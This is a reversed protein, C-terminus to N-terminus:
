KKSILLRHLALQYTPALDRPVLVDPASDGLLQGASAVVLANGSVMALGADSKRVSAVVRVGHGRELVVVPLAFTNSIAELFAEQHRATVLQSALASLLRQLPLTTAAFGKVLQTAKLLGLTSEAIEAVRLLVDYALSAAKPLEAAAEAVSSTGATVGGGASAFSADASDVATLIDVLGVRTHALALGILVPLPLSFPLSRAAPSTLNLRAAHLSALGLYSAVDPLVPAADRPPQYSDVLLVDRDLFAVAEHQTVTGRHRTLWCCIRRYLLPWLWAVSSHWLAFDTAETWSIGTNEDVCLAPELDYNAERARSCLENHHLLLTRLAVLAGAFTIQPDALLTSGPGKSSIWLIKSKKDAPARLAKPLRSFWSLAFATPSLNFAEAFGTSAVASDKSGDCDM